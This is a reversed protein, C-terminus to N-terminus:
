SKSTKSVPRGKQIYEYMKKYFDRWRDQLDPRWGNEIENKELPQELSNILERIDNLVDEKMIM